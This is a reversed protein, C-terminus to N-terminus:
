LDYLSLANVPLNVSGDALSDVCMQPCLLRLLRGMVLGALDFCLAGASSCSIIACLLRTFHADPPLFRGTALRSRSPPFQELVVLIWSLCATADVLYEDSSDESFRCSPENSADGSNHTRATCRLYRRLVPVYLWDDPLLPDCFPATYATSHQSSQISSYTSTSESEKSDEEEEEEEIVCNLSKNLHGTVPWSSHAQGPVLFSSLEALYLRRIHHFLRRHFIPDFQPWPERPLVMASPYTKELLRCQMPLEVYLLLENTAGIPTIQIGGLTLEPDLIVTRLLEFAVESQNTFLFPLLQMATRWIFTKENCNEPARSRQADTLVARGVLNSEISLLSCPLPVSNKSAVPPVSLKSFRQLWFSVVPKLNVDVHWSVCTEQLQVAAAVLPLLRHHPRRSSSLPPTDIPEVVVQIQPLPPWLVACTGTSGMNYRFCVYMGLDPLVPATLAIPDLLSADLKESPDLGSLSPLQNEPHQQESSSPHYGTPLNLEVTRVDGILSPYGTLVSERRVVYGLIKSWAPGSFLPELYETFVSKFKSMFPIVPNPDVRTVQLVLLVANVAVAVLAPSLKQNGFLDHPDPIPESTFLPKALALVGLAFGSLKEVYQNLGSKSLLPLLRALFALWGTWLHILLHCFPTQSELSAINAHATRVMEAMAFLDDLRSKLADLAKMPPDPNRVCVTLCRLAELQLLIRLDLPLCAPLHSVISTVCVHSPNRTPVSGPPLM